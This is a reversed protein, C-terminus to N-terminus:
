CIIDEVRGTVHFSVVGSTMKFYFSKVIFNEDVRCQTLTAMGSAMGMLNLRLFIEEQIFYGKEFPKILNVSYGVKKDKLYIEKWDRQFSDIKGSLQISNSVDPTEKFNVKKVLFGIMILWFAVIAIGLSHFLFKRNKRTNVSVLNM